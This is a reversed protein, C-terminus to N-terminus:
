GAALYAARLWEILEADVDAVTSLRVRYNCMQGSPLPELRPAEPLSKVNLGLEVRTQSAPGIMAFQKKRRYSVYKQKPAAEFDGFTGLHVLLADHIPRLALKPGQYLANLLAL